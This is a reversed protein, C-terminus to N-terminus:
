ASVALFQVGLIQRLPSESRIWRLQSEVSVWSGGDSLYMLSVFDKRKLQGRGIEICAGGASFDIMKGESLAQILSGTPSETVYASKKVMVPAQIIHREQKRSYLTKGEQSLTLLEPLAAVESHRLVMCPPYKLSLQYVSSDIVQALIIFNLNVNATNMRLLMEAQKVTCEHLDVLVVTPHTIRSSLAKLDDVSSLHRLKYGHVGQLYTPLAPSSHIYILESLLKIQM